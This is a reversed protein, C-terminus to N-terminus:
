VQMRGPIVNVDFDKEEVFIVRIELELPEEFSLVGPDLVEFSGHQISIVQLNTSVTLKKGSALRCPPWPPPTLPDNEMQKSKKSFM